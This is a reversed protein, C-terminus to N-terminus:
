PVMSGSEARANKKSLHADGFRITKKHKSLAGSDGQKSIQVIFYRVKDLAVRLRFEGAANAHLLHVGCTATTFGM